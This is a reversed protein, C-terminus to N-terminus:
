VSHGLPTGNCLRYRIFIQSIIGNHLLDLSTSAASCSASGQSGPIDTRLTMEISTDDAAKSGDENYYTMVAQPTMVISTNDFPLGNISLWICFPPMPYKQSFQATTSETVTKSDPFDTLSQIIYALLVLFTCVTFGRTIKTSGGGHSAIPIGIYSFMDINELFTDLCEKNM